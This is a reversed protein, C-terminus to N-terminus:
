YLRFTCHFRIEIVVLAPRAPGRRHGQAGDEIATQQPAAELATEQDILDLDVLEKLSMTFDQM